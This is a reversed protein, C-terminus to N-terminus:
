ANQDSHLNISIDVTNNDVVTERNLLASSEQENRRGDLTTMPVKKRKNRDSSDDGGGGGRATSQSKGGYGRVHGSPRGIHFTLKFTDRFHGSMGCYLVFNIASYLVTLM